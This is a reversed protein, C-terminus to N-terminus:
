LFDVDEERYYIYGVGLAGIVIIGGVPLLPVSIDTGPIDFSSFTTDDTGAVGSETLEFDQTFQNERFTVVMTHNGFDRETTNFSFDYQGDGDITVTDEVIRNYSDPTMEVTVPFDVTVDTGTEINIEGTVEEGPTGSEIEIQVGDETIDPTFMEFQQDLGIEPVIPATELNGIDQEWTDDATSERFSEIETEDGDADYWYNNTYSNQMEGNVSNVFIVSNNVSSGSQVRTDNGIIISNSIEGGGGGSIAGFNNGSGSISHVVIQTANTISSGGGDGGVGGFYNGESEVGEVEVNSVNDINVFLGVIGGTAYSTSLGNSVVGITVSNVNNIDGTEVHGAIGGLHNGNGTVNGITASEINAVNGTDVYGVIGGIKEGGSLEGVEVNKIHSIDGGQVWGVIGGVRGYGSNSSGSIEKAEVDSINTASAARGAVGGIAGVYFGDAYVDGVEVNSVNDVHDVYGVVGGISYQNGSVDETKVNKVNTMNGDIFGIVGGIRYNGSISGSVEIDSVSINGSGYGVLGGMNASGNIYVDMGVNSIDTTDESAQFGLFLGVPGEGTRNIYFGNISHGQGDFTGSFNASPVGDASNWEGIPDFGSGGNWNETGSANIDNGLAYHDSLSANIAQLESVNTIVHPNAETGDGETGDIISGYNGPDPASQAAAGGIAVAGVVAAFVATLFLIRRNVM